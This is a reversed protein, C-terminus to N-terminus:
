ARGKKKEYLHGIQQSIKIMEVNPILNMIRDIKVVEIALFQKRAALM